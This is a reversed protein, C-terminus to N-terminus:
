WPSRSVGPRFARTFHHPCHRTQTARWGVVGLILAESDLSEGERCGSQGARPGRSGRGTRTGKEAISAARPSAFSLPMGEDKQLDKEGM